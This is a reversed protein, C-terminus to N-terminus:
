LSFSRPEVFIPSQWLCSFIPRRRLPIFNLKEPAVSPKKDDMDEDDGQKLTQLIVEEISTEDDKSDNM